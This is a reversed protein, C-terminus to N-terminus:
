EAHDFAEGLGLVRLDEMESWGSFQGSFNLGAGFDFEVLEMGCGLQVVEPDRWAVAKFFQGPVDPIKVADSDVLLPPDNEDPFVIM